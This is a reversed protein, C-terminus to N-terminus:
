SGSECSLSVPGHTVYPPLHTRHANTAHHSFLVEFGVLHMTEHIEHEFSEVSFYTSNLQHFYDEEYIYSVPPKKSFSESPLLIDSVCLPREGLSHGLCDRIHNTM